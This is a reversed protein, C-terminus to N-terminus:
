KIIDKFLKNWNDVMKQYSFEQARRKAKQGLERKRETDNLLDTLEKEFQIIDDCVIGAGGLLEEMAKTGKTRLMVVALGASMGELFSVNFTEIFSGHADAYVSLRSLTRAKKESENIKISTDYTMRPHILPPTGTTNPVVMYCEADEYKLLIRKVINNWEAHIKSPANRTVRGFRKNTYDIDYIYHSQDIGGYIMESRYGRSIMENKWAETLTVVKNSNDNPMTRGYSHILSIIKSNYYPKRWTIYKNYGNLFCEVLYIDAKPPNPDDINCYIHRGLTKDFIYRSIDGMEDMTNMGIVHCIVPDQVISVKKIKRIKDFDIDSFGIKKFYDMKGTPCVNIIRDKWPTFEKFYKVANKYKIFKREEKVENPYDEKYHYSEPTETDNGDMGLLYIPDAGTILALNLACLGTLTGNFLGNEINLDPKIDPNYGKPLFRTVNDGFLNVRNSCFIRGKFNDLNYTTTNLFNQDLFILWELKDYDEIIHNIGITHLGNLKNLDFGQLGKSTGIIFAPEGKWKDKINDFSGLVIKMDRIIGMRDFYEWLQSTTIKNEKNKSERKLKKIDKLALVFGSLEPKKMQTSKYKNVDNFGLIM